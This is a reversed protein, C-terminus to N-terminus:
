NRFIRKYIKSVMSYECLLFSRRYKSYYTNGATTRTYGIYCLKWLESFNEFTECYKISKDLMKQEEITLRGKTKGLEDRIIMAQAVYYCLHDYEERATLSKYPMQDLVPHNINMREAILLVQQFAFRNAARLSDDAATKLLDKIINKICDTLPRIKFRKALRYRGQWFSLESFSCVANLEALSKDGPIERINQLEKKAENLCSKAKFYSGYCRYANCSDLLLSARTPRDSELSIAEATKHFGKAAQLYKGMHFLAQAKERKLVAVESSTLDTEYSVIAQQSSRFALSACGISNLLRTGWIAIEKESFEKKISGVLGDSFGKCRTANVNNDILLSLLRRMDGCLFYGEQTKLFRHANQTMSDQDMINWYINKVSINRIEPCIEFDMGSYGIILLSQGNVMHSLLKRKWDELYTEHILAYRLTKGDSDDASGHIKFYYRKNASLEPQFDNDAVVRQIDKYPLLINDLCLDYNTTIVGRFKGDVLGNAIAEHIPNYNEVMFNKKIIQTLKKRNPCKELMHEFPLTAWLNHLLGM